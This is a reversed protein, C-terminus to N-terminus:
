NSLGLRELADARMRLLHRPPAQPLAQPCAMQSVAGGRYGIEIMQGVSCAATVADWALVPSALAAVRQIFLVDKGRHLSACRPGEQDLKFFGGEASNTMFGYAGCDAQMLARMLRGSIQARSQFGAENMAIPETVGLKQMAESLSSAFPQKADFLLSHMLGRPGGDAWASFLPMDLVADAPHLSALLTLPTRKDGAARRSQVEAQAMMMLSLGCAYPDDQRSYGPPLAHAPLDGRTLLCRNLASEMHTKAIADDWIGHQRLMLLAVWDAHGEHMWPRDPDSRRVGVNWWHATEHMVFHQLAHGTSDQEKAAPVLRLRMMRGDSTDGHFGGSDAMSTVVGVPGAPKVGYALALDEMAQTLTRRILDVRAEDLTPDRVLSGGPFEILPANGLYAYHQAGIRQWSQANNGGEITAASVSAADILLHAATRQVRGDQLVYGGAPARWRWQLDHGALAVAYFGSYAIVGTGAIPQAAEYTANRALLKPTVRLRATSCQPDALLQILDGEIRTCADLPQVQDRWFDRAAASRSWRQLETVGAPPTYSILLAGDEALAMEILLEGARAQDCLVAGATTLLALITIRSLHIRLCATYRKIHAAIGMKSPLTREISHSPAAAHSM